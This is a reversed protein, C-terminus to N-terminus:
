TGSGRSVSTVDLDTLAVVEASTFGPAVQEVVLTGNQRRFLALDTVLIDVCAKGTLAYTCRQVVKPRDHSDRHEMMVMVTRGSAVLDMAGGIGGGIMDPTQWNAFSGEADVQYAGLVVVDVRGGRVMEFATVSDFYSIGPSPTVTFGSANFVDPYMEDEPAIEGYGLIGNEGHLVIDRGRIYSSIYSPIGLGLNVYSGDPLLRAALEAMQPRTWGPKGNYARPVDVDRRRPGHKPATNPVTARVVRSVFIGPLDIREPPIEGPEVVEDVEVIAVRAAKAFSPGFHQNAGRFEVNGHRDARHAAIFAYDVHIATELLYPKGDFYRVEKGDAILTDLGTPTYIAALGAGAARLREVLTGQPVMECTLEGARIRQEAASVGGPRASFSVILHRVQGAEVLVQGPPPIGNAVLCLDTTGREALAALLSVPAGASPGFCSVAVTAGAPLDSIADAPSASLKDM